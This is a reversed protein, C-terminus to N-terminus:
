HAKHQEGDAAFVEFRRGNGIPRELDAHCQMGVHEGLAEAHGLRDRNCWTAVFAQRIERPLQKHRLWDKKTHSRYWM